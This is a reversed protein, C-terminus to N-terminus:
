VRSVRRRCQTRLRTPTPNYTILNSPLPLLDPLPTSDTDSTLTNPSRCWRLCDKGKGERRSVGLTLHSGKGDEVM